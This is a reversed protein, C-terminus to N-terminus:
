TAELSLPNADFRVERSTKGLKIEDAHRRVRRALGPITNANRNLIQPKSERRAAHGNLQGGM